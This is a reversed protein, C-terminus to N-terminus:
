LHTLRNNMYADNVQMRPSSSKSSRSFDVPSHEATREFRDSGCHGSIFTGSFIDSPAQRISNIHNTFHRSHSPIERPSRQVCDSLSELPNHFQGYRRNGGAVNAMAGNSMTPLTTPLKSRDYIGSFHSPMSMESAIISGGNRLPMRSAIEGLHNQFMPFGNGPFPIDYGPSNMVLRSESSPIVSKERHFVLDEDMVASQTQQPSINHPMFGCRSQSMTQAESGNSSASRVGGDSGM